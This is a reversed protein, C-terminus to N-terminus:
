RGWRGAEPESFHTTEGHWKLHVIRGAGRRVKEFIVEAKGYLRQKQEDYERVRGQWQTLPEGAKQEPADKPLYYEPRYLFAISDADQEIDGSQRLDAMTPRKDERNEVGRNLQALALVPCKLDKALKKLGHSIEGVAQTPGFQRRASDTDHAIIHLHDVVILALRGFKRHVERARIAIQQMNLSATEDIELPLNDLEERAMSLMSRHLQHEGRQLLEAPVGGFAALAREGLEEAPMELSQMFVGGISTGALLAERCDLAAHIAIQWALASKGMAPRAGLIHFSGDRLGNYVRDLSAFGTMLGSKAEGRAVRDAHALAADLAANMSITPARGAPNLSAADLGKMAADLVDKVEHTRDFAQNVMDAGVSILERRAWDEAILKGYELANIIGVMSSLLQAIYQIGGVEDLIPSNGFFSSLWVADAVGGQSIKRAIARYISQHVPDAFHEPQLFEAVAHYAKPNAMMAGLLAQEAQMNSPPLRQSIGLLPSGAAPPKLAASM